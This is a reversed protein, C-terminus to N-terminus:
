KGNIGLKLMLKKWWNLDEKYNKIDVKEPKTVVWYKWSDKGENTGYYFDFIVTPNEISPYKFLIDCGWKQEVFGCSRLFRQPNFNNNEM